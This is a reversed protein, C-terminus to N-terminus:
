NGYNLLERSWRSSAQVYSADVLEFFNSSAEDDDRKAFLGKVKAWPSHGPFFFPSQYSSILPGPYSSSFVLPFFYLSHRIHLTAPNMPIMILWNAIKSNAKLILTFKSWFLFRLFLFVFLQGFSGGIVHSFGNYSSVASWNEFFNSRMSHKCQVQYRLVTSSLWNVKQREYNFNKM